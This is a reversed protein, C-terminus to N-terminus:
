PFVPLLNLGEREDLDFLINMNQVAQGSSGKTLNDIVSVIIMKGSIRSEFLAIKCNNTALVDRTSPYGEVLEVFYEDEFQTELANKADLVKIKDELDVYITSIIGRNMPVLHPTFSIKTNGGDINQLEQEIEALHRHININYAKVGENIETFLLNEKLARGAGSLGSKSDIIINDAKIIKSKLLPILPILASTPYCGPCAVLRPQLKKIDSRAFESLGYIALEQLDPAIHDLGYWQKYDEVNSLRFDASLDIIKLHNLDKDSLIDSIIKQSTAHPLCCFLLDINKLNIEELKQIKPLNYGLFHPYIEQIEKGANASAVLNAIEANQHNLLIRILEVGTYGSAGIIAIKIKKLM